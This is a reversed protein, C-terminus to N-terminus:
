LERNRKLIITYIIFFFFNFFVNKGILYMFPNLFAETTTKQEYHMTTTLEVLQTGSM